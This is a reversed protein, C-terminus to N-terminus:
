YGIVSARPRGSALHEGQAQAEAPEDKQAAALQVALRHPVGCLQFLVAEAYDHVFLHKQSLVRKFFRQVCRSASGQISDEAELDGLKWLNLLGPKSWSVAGTSRNTYYWKGAVTDWQKMYTEQVMKRMMIRAKRTRWLAQFKLVAEVETYIGGHRCQDTAEAPRHDLYREIRPVATDSWRLNNVLAPILPGGRRLELRAVQYELCAYPEHVVTATVLHAVGPLSVQVVYGIKPVVISGLRKLRHEKTWKENLSEVVNGELMMPM